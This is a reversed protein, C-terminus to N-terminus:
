PQRRLPLSFINGQYMYELNKLIVEYAGRGIDVSSCDEGM